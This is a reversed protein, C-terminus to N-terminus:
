IQYGKGDLILFVSEQTMHDKIVQGLYVIFDTTDDDDHAFYAGIPINDEVVFNDLNGYMPWGGIVSPYQTFAGFKIGIEKRLRNIVDQRISAVLEPEEVGDNLTNPVFLVFNHDLATLQALKSTM